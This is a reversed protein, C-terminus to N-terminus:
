VIVGSKLLSEIQELENDTGNIGHVHVDSVVVHGSCDGLRVSYNTPYGSLSDFTTAVKTLPREFIIYPTKVGMAGANGSFGGSRAPNSKAFNAVGGAISGAGAALGAGTSALAVGAIGGAVGLLGSVLGSHQAGTLPYEVSAVGSYQYMGVTNGDRSVEVIALCAGTFVDVGYKIHVTSRMVDDPNLPVFGIFPLYLSITTFPPYDFVNGFYENIDVSGCDVSVYQQAVTASPVESDLRGVVITASGSEVPMAFVKHLTIIGEMPNNLLQIFQQIVNDTWLWAGFSDIQAKTPHYVSWLASSSGTIPVLPPADGDGVTTPNNIDTKLVTVTQTMTKILEKILSEPSTAVNVLTNGQSAGDSTPQPNVWPQTSTDPSTINEPLAVPIYTKTLVSGDPQVNQYQIANNYMDPYATRLYADTAPIDTWTSTDPLIGSPQSSIGEVGSVEEITGYLIIYSMFIRGNTGYGPASTQNSPRYLPYGYNTASLQQNAAIAKNFVYFTKGNITHQTAAESMNPPNDYSTRKWWSVTFPATSCFIPNSNVYSVNSETIWYPLVGYVVDTQSTVHAGDDRYFPNTNFIKCPVSCNTSVPLPMYYNPIGTMDDPYETTETSSDFVGQTKMWYAMYSFADADMYAQMDGSQAEIGFIFNFLTGALDPNPGAITSWTEPNLTSMGISDWFDPNANYLRSDISKALNIATTAGYIASGVRGLTYMANQRFSGSYPQMSAYVHGTQPNVNTNMPVNVATRTALANTSVSPTPNYNLGDLQGSYVWVKNGNATQMPEIGALWAIEEFNNPDVGYQSIENAINTWSDGWKIQAAQQVQETTTPVPVTEMYIEWPSYGM